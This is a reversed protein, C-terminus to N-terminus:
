AFPTNSTPGRLSEEWSPIEILGLNSIAGNFLFIENIDGRPRNRDEPRRILNFDGVIPWQEENPM